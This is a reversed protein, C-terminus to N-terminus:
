VPDYELARLNIFIRLICLPAHSSRIGPHASVSELVPFEDGLGLEAWVLFLVLIFMGESRPVQFPGMLYCNVDSVQGLLSM